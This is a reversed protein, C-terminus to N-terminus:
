KWPLINGEAPGPVQVQFHKRDAQAWDIWCSESFTFQDGQRVAQTSKQSPSIGKSEVESKRAGLGTHLGLIGRSLGDWSEQAQEWTKYHLARLATCHNEYVLPHPSTLCPIAHERFRFTCIVESPNRGVVANDLKRGASLMQRASLFPGPCTLVIKEQQRERGVEYNYWRRPGAIVMPFLLQSSSQATTRQTELGFRWGLHSTRTDKVICSRVEEQVRVWSSLLLEAWMFPEKRELAKNREM